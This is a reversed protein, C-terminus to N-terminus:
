LSNSWKLAYSNFCAWMQQQDFLAVEVDGLPVNEGSKTVIFIQGNILKDEPQTVKNSTVSENEKPKCGSLGFALVLLFITAVTKLKLFRYEIRTEDTVLIMERTRRLKRKMISPVSAM